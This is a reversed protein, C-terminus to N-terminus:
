LPHCWGCRCDVRHAARRKGRRGQVAAAAAQMHFLRSPAHRHARSLCTVVARIIHLHGM